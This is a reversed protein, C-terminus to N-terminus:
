ASALLLEVSPIEWLCIGIRYCKPRGSQSPLSLLLLRSEELPLLGGTRGGLKLVMVRDEGFAELVAKVVNIPPPGDKSGMRDDDLGNFGRMHAKRLLCGCASAFVSLIRGNDDVFMDSWGRM